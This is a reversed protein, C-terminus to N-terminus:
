DVTNIASGGIWAGLNDSLQDVLRQRSERTGWANHPTLILNPIEKQLLPHSEPPPEQDLVDIGAGAIRGQKLADVLAVSDIIAGRATNIVIASSKMRRFEDQGLLHTTAPTLPCHLTLVDTEALLQDFSVRGPAVPGGPRQCIKVVMGFANGIEAVKRGLTGYGIIGLIKDRAEIIPYDLLCFLDSKSWAGAGVDAHYRIQNTLLNLM